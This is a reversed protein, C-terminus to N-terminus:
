IAVGVLRNMEEFNFKRLLRAVSARTSAELKTAGMSGAIDKLQVLTEESTILRGGIATVHAVRADPRNFFCMTAAGHIVGDKVAILLTWAGSTVNGKVQEVTLGTKSHKVAKEFFYEVGPWTRHAWEVPVAEIKM